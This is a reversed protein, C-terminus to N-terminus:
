RIVEAGGMVKESTFSSCFTPAGGFGGAPVSLCASLPPKSDMPIGYSYPSIITQNWVNKKKLFQITWFFTKPLVKRCSVFEWRGHNNKVQQTGNTINPCHCGDARYSVSRHVCERNSDGRTPSLWLKAAWKWSIKATEQPLDIRNGGWESLTPLPWFVDVPDAEFGVQIM